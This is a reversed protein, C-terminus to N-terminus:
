PKLYQELTNLCAIMRQGEKTLFYARSQNQDIIDAEKLMKLHFFVKTHDDIGLDRTIKMLHIDDKDRLMKLINRRIPNALTSLTRDIDLKKIGEEFKAEELVRRITLLLNDIKFPKSVYDSAGKKIAEIANEISSFATIMVVKAKPRLGKIEILADIGSKKPMMYDLLVIDFEELSLKEYAEKASSASQTWYGDERLVEALHDRLEMDDDVILIKKM